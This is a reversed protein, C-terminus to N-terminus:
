FVTCRCFCISFFTIDLFLHIQIHHHEVFFTQLSSEINKDINTQQHIQCLAPHLEVPICSIYISYICIEIEVTVM